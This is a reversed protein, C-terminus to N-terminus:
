EKNVIALLREEYSPRQDKLYDLAAECFGEKGHFNFSQEKNSIGLDVRGSGDEYLTLTAVRGVKDGIKALTKCIEEFNM